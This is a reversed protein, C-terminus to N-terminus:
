YLIFFDIPVPMDKIVVVALMVNSGVTDNVM